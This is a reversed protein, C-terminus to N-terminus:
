SRCTSPRGREVSRSQEDQAKLSSRYELCLEATSCRCQHFEETTQAERDQFFRSPNVRAFSGPVCLPAHARVPGCNEIAGDPRPWGLRETKLRPINDVADSIEKLELPSDPGKSLERLRHQIADEADFVLREFVAPNTEDVAAEYVIHWDPM